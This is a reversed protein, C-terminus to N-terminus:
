EIEEETGFSLGRLIEWVPLFKNLTDYSFQPLDDAYHIEDYGSTYIHKIYEHYIERILGTPYLNLNHCTVTELMNAKFDAWNPLSIEPQIASQQAQRFSIDFSEQVIRIINGGFSFGYERAM